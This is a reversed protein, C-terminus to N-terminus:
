MIVAAEEAGRLVARASMGGVVALAGMGAGTGLDAWVSNDTDGFMWRKAATQTAGGAVAGGAMAAAIAGPGTEIAALGSVFAGGLAAVGTAVDVTIEQTWGGRFYSQFESTFPVFTRWGGDWISKDNNVNKLMAALKKNAEVNPDFNAAMFKDHAEDIMA